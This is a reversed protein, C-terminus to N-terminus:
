SPSGSPARVHDVVLQHDVRASATSCGIRRPPRAASCRSRSPTRACACSTSASTPRTASSAPFQARDAALRDLHTLATGAVAYILAVWVLYGPIAITSASCTCRRRRRCRGCSSWSPGSRCRRRRASPHRHCLANDVFLRIDEAIRQDPNDAADGLLQMRYHNADTSGSTRSLRADDLAALPDAAVPASLAPLGRARHLRRRSHLFVAARQRLVTGTATRCRM